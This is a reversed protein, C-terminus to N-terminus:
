ELALRSELVPSGWFVVEIVTGVLCGERMWWVRCLGIGLKGFEELSEFSTVLSAEASGKIPELAEIL